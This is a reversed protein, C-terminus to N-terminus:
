RHPGTMSKCASVAYCSASPGHLLMAACPSQLVGVQKCGALVECLTTGYFSMWTQSLTQPQGAVQAAECIFRLLAQLLPCAATLCGPASCSHCVPLCPFSDQRDEWFCQLRRQLGLPDALQGCRAGTQSICSCSQCWCEECTGPQCPLCAAARHYHCSQMGMTVGQAQQM